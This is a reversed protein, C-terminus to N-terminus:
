HQPALDKNSAKNVSKLKEETLKLEYSLDLIMRYDRSKPPIAAIPSIKLKPPPNDKLDKWKVVRCSGEAIRKLTETRLAKSVGPLEENQYPGKQIGAEM